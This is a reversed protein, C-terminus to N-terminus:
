DPLEKILIRRVREGAPRNIQRMLEKKGEADPSAIRDLDIRYNGDPWRRVIAYAETEIMMTLKPTQRKTV